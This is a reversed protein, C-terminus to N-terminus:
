VLDLNTIVVNEGKQAYKYNTYVKNIANFFVKSCGPEMGDHLEIVIMKVKPMWSEYNSSFLHKESTEIDLKLIDIRELNYNAIITNISLANISGNILDEEVVMGWKGINYKDFVNLKTDNNWLGCNEFCVGKYESLNGKLVAFNASDPEVCIILAEPFRSKMKISFLGINAGGDIIVKPSQVYNLGYDDRLFVQYFTATDSTSPRLQIKHHIGPLKLAGIRGLKFLLFLKIGSLVGFRQIFRLIHQVQFQM